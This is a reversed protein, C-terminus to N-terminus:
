HHRYIVFNLLPQLFSECEPLHNNIIELAQYYHTFMRETAREEGLVTVITDKSADQAVPKGLRKLERMCDVSGPLAEVGNHIVGWLDLIYGDFDEAIAAFGECFNVTSSM